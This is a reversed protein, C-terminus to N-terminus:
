YRMHILSRLEHLREGYTKLDGTLKRSIWLEEIRDLDYGSVKFSIHKPDARNIQPNLTAGFTLWAAVLNINSETREQFQAQLVQFDKNM